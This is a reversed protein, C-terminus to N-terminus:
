AEEGSEPLPQVVLTAGEIRNIQVVAGEAIPEGSASQALWDEGAIRVHGGKLPGGIADVVLGSSGVMGQAGSPMPPSRRRALAKMLLPRGLVIGLASVVAFGLVQVWFVFGFVDLVAAALAGIALFAAFFAVSAVELLALALAVGIWILAV